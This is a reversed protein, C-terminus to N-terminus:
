VLLLYYYYSTSSSSSSICLVSICFLKPIRITPGSFTWETSNLVTFVGRKGRERRLHTCYQLMPKPQTGITYELTSVSVSRQKKTSFLLSIRWKEFNQNELVMLCQNRKKSKKTTGRTSGKLNMSSNTFAYFVSPATYPNTREPSGYWCLMPARCLNGWGSHLTSIFPKCIM